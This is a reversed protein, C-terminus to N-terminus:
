PLSLAVRLLLYLRGPVPERTDGYPRRLVL